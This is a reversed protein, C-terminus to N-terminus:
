RTCFSVLEPISYTYTYNCLCKLRQKISDYLVQAEAKTFTHTEMQGNHFEVLTAKETKYALVYCMLQIKEYIRLGLSKRRCKIEWVNELDMVGNTKTCADCIGVLRISKEKPDEHHIVMDHLTIYMYVQPAKVFKKNISTSYKRSIYGEMNYGRVKQLITRFFKYNMKHKCCLSKITRDGLDEWPAIDPLTCYKKYIDLKKLSTLVINEHAQQKTRIKKPLNYNRLVDLMVDWAQKWPSKGVLGCVSSMPISLQKVQM